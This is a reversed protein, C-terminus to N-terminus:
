FEYKWILDLASTQESDIQTELDFNKNIEYTVELKQNVTEDFGQRFTVFVRPLVYKGMTLAGQRLGGSGASINLYDIGLMDGIIDRLKDAAIQGTFSLAAEEAQFSEKESLNDPGRGFVLYSIIDSPDMAPDSDLVLNLRDFTGSLRVIITVEGIETEAEINISPNIDERGTFILEGSTIQFLHGQFRYTGRVPMVSGYLVFPKRPDKKLQVNGKIEIYEDKGRVWFDKPILVAVDASLPDVFALPEPETEPVRLMGNGESVPSVVKIESVQKALVRELNVRGEPITIKGTLVPAEWTGSLTLDPNIRADVGSHFPIYFRDGVARLNFDRLHFSEHTMAGSLRLSGEKDGKLTIDSLTVVNAAFELDATLTEYVLGQKKLTLTGDALHMRGKIDPQLFDGSVAATGDISGAVDYEPHNITKSIWAIDAQDLSIQLDLGGPEPQCVFPYLSLRLRADGDVGLIKRNQRYASAAVKAKSGTYNISAAAESVSFQNFAAEKISLHMDIVPNDLRGSLQIDSSLLGQPQDGTTIFKAIEEIRTIDAIDIRDIHVAANLRGPGPKVAFPYLALNVAASGTMDLIKEGGLLGSGTVNIRSNEYVIAASLDTAPFNDYAAEEASATMRIVPNQLSGSVNLDSSLRGQIKEGGEWFGSIRKLDFGKLAAEASIAGPSILDARGKIFVSASGSDLSLSDVQIRDGSVSFSVTERNVLPPQGATRLIVKDMKVAKVPGLWGQVTGSLTLHETDGGQIDLDAQVSAQTGTTKLDVIPLLWGNIRMNKASCDGSMDFEDPNGRWKGSADLFEASVDRFVIDKGKMEANIDPAAWPGEIGATLGVSGSLADSDSLDPVFPRIVSIDALFAEAKIRCTEDSISATGTLSATGLATQLDFRKFRIQENEWAADVDASVIDTNMLRSSKIRCVAQVTIDKAEFTKPIFIATELTGNLTGAYRSDKIYEEPNLGNVDATLEIRSDADEAMIGALIGEATLTAGSPSRLNIADFVLDPGDIGVELHGEEIGHDWFRSPDLDLIIKGTQEPMGVREWFLIFEADIDSPFSELELAPLAALDLNRTKGIIDLGVDNADDITVLGQSMVHCDDMVLDVRCDMGSLPGKVSLNGSVIDEDPMEVPFARGFEGLSMAAIEARLDMVVADPGQDPFNLRGDITFDSTEGQIRVDNVDLRSQDFDYLLHGALDRLDIDPFDSRVALHRVAAELEDAVHLRAVCEIGTFHHAVVGDDSQWSLSVESGEVVLRRIFVKFFSGATEPLDESVGKEEAPGSAPIDFNWRGDVAEHLHVSVGELNLRNIWLVRGLLMPISYSVYIRDASLLPAGTKADKVDLGRMEFRSILSGSLEGIRCVFPTNKGISEEIIRTVADRAPRTQLIMFAGVFLVMFVAASYLLMRVLIGPWRRGPPKSIESNTKPETM